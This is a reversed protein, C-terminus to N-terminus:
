SLGVIVGPIQGAEKTTLAQGKRGYTQFILTAKKQNKLSPNTRVTLVNMGGEGVASTGGTLSATVLYYDRKSLEIPKALKLEAVTKSNPVIDNYVNTSIVGYSGHETMACVTLALKSIRDTAYITVGHLSVNTDKSASVKFMIQHKQKEGYNLVVGQQTRPFRRAVILEPIPEYSARTGDTESSLANEEIEGKHDTSTVNHLLDMLSGRDEQDGQVTVIDGPTSLVTSNENYADDSDALDECPARSELSENFESLADWTPLVKQTLNGHEASIVCVSRGGFKEKMMITDDTKIIVRYIADTEIVQHEFSWSWMKLQQIALHSLDDIFTEKLFTIIHNHAELHM